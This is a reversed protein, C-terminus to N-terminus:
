ATVPVAAEARQVQIVLGEDIGTVV